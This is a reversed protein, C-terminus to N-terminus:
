QNYQSIGVSNGDWDVSYKRQFLGHNMGEQYKGRLVDAPILRQFTKPRETEDPKAAPKEEEAAWVLAVLFLALVARMQLM